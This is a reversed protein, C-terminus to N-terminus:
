PAAGPTGTAPAGDGTCAAPAWTPRADPNPAGDRPLSATLAERRVAISHRPTQTPLVTTDGPAYTATVSWGDRHLWEAVRITFGPGRVTVCSPAKGMGAEIERMATRWAGAASAETPWERTAEIFLVLAEEEPWAGDTGDYGTLGYLVDYTGILERLGELPAPVARARVARVVGSRLPGMDVGRLQEFPAVGVALDAVDHRNGCALALAAGCITVGLTGTRM